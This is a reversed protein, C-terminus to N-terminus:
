LMELCADRWSSTSWKKKPLPRTMSWCSSTMSNGAISPTKGLFAFGRSPPGKFVAPPSLDCCRLRLSSMRAIQLSDGAFSNLILAHIAASIALLRAVGYLESQPICNRGRNLPYVKWLWRKHLAEANGVRRDLPPIRYVRSIPVMQGKPTKEGTKYYKKAEFNAMKGKFRLTQPTSSPWKRARLPCITSEPNWSGLGASIGKFCPFVCWSWLQRM